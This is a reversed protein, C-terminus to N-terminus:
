SMTCYMTERDLRSTSFYESSNTQLYDINFSINQFINYDSLYSYDYGFPLIYESKFQKLLYFLGFLLIFDIRKFYKIM